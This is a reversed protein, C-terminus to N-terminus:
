KALLAPIINVYQDSWPRRRPLELETRADKWGYESILRAIKASDRSMVFWESGSEGKEADANIVIKFAAPIQESEALDRLAGKLNLYRSSIHFVLVGGATLKSVYIELAERTLLHLPISDSSFADLIFLDYIAPDTRSLSLRADGLIIQPKVPSIGLFTFFQKAIDVVDPDLEYVDWAEGPQGYMLLSGVGLGVVGVRHFGKEMKFLDAVPSRHHYYTLPLNQKDAQKYQKGHITNGHFLVNFGEQRRVRWVGYFNRISFLLDKNETKIMASIGLGALFLLSASVIVAAARRRSFFARIPGADRMIFSTIVLLFAFIYDIMIMPFHRGLLPIVVGIVLAAFWGGLGVCLYYQGLLNPRNPKSNYLNKHGIMCGIFLILCHFLIIWKTFMKNPNRFVFVALTAALLLCLINLYAPYWPKQKFNLIISALYISLPLMWLLPVAAIDLTIINTVAMMLACTGASILTWYVPSEWNFEHKSKRVEALEVRSSKQAEKKPVCFFHCFVFVAYLAYWIALQQNVTFLPEFVTPYSLLAVLAGANSAAYLFYPNKASPAGSLSFWKQILPSTVSLTFFPLGISLCLLLLVDTLPSLGPHVHRVSIPFSLAVLGLLIIHVRAYLRQNALNMVRDAYLYGALLMGTFFMMCTTWVHFSGGFMPLLLKAIMLEIQFLLFSALFSVISFVFTM